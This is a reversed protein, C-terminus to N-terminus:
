QKEIQAEILSRLNTDISPNNLLVQWIELARDTEGAQLQALGTYYSAVANDPAIKLAARINDMAVVSLVGGELMLFNEAIAIYIEASPGELQIVRRWSDIAKDYMGLSQRLTAMLKWGTVDNPAERLRMEVKALAAGVPLENVPMDLRDALPADGQDPSGM